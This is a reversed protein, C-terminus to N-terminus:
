TDIMAIVLMSAMMWKLLRMYSANVTTGGRKQIDFSIENCKLRSGLQYAVPCLNM